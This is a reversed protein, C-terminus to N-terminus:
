CKAWCKARSVLRVTCSMGFTTSKQTTLIWPPCHGRQGAGRSLFYGKGGGCCIQERASSHPCLMHLALGASFARPQSRLLAMKHKLGVSSGRSKNRKRYLARPDERCGIPSACAMLKFASWPPYLRFCPTVIIQEETLFPLCSSPSDHLRCCSKTFNQNRMWHMYILDTNDHNQLWLMPTKYTSINHNSRFTVNPKNTISTCPVVVGMGHHHVTVPEFNQGM